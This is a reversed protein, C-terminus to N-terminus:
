LLLFLPFLIFGSLPRLSMWGQFHFCLFRLVFSFPFSNDTASHIHRRLNTHQLGVGCHAPILFHLKQSYNPNSLATFICLGAVPNTGKCFEHYLKSGKDGTDVLHPHVYPHIHLASSTEGWFKVMNAGQPQIELRWFQSSEM